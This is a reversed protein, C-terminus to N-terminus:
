KVIRLQPRASPHPEGLIETRYMEQFEGMRLHLLKAMESASYGLKKMHFSIVQRLLKPHEAAASAGAEPLWAQENRDLVNQISLAHRAGASGGQCCPRGHLSELLTQSEALQRVLVAFSRAYKMPQFCFPVQLPMRKTKWKKM